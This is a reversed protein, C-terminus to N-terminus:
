SKSRIRAKLFKSFSDFDGNSYSASVVIDKLMKETDSVALRTDESVAFHDQQEQGTPIVSSGLKLSDTEIAHEHKKESKLRTKFTRYTEANSLSVGAIVLRIFSTEALLRNRYAQVFHQNREEPTALAQDSFTASPNETKIPNFVDNQIIDPLMKQEFGVYLKPTILGDRILGTQQYLRELRDALNKESNFHEAPTQPLVISEVAEQGGSIRNIINAANKFEGKCMLASLLVGFYFEVGSLSQKTEEVCRFHGEKAEPTPLTNSM